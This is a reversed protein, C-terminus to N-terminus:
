RPPAPRNSVFAEVAALKSQCHYAGLLGLPKVIPLPLRNGIDPILRQWRDILWPWRQSPVQPVDLGLHALHKWFHDMQFDFNRYYHDRSEFNIKMVHRAELSLLTAWALASYLSFGASYAFALTSKDWAYIMLATGLMINPVFTPAYKKFRLFFNHDYNAHHLPIIPNKQLGRVLFRLNGRLYDRFENYTTEFREPSRTKPDGWLLDYFVKEAILQAQAESSEFELPSFEAGGGVGGTMALTLNFVLSSTITLM